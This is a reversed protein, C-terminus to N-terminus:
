EGLGVEGVTLPLYPSPSTSRQAVKVALGV